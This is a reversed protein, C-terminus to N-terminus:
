FVDSPPEKPRRIMALGGWVLAVGGGIFPAGVVLCVIVLSGTNNDPSRIATGLAQLSFAATCLGSLGAMLLGSVIMLAAFVKM